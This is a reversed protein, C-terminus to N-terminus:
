SPGRGTVAAPADAVVVEYTERGPPSRFVTAFRAVQEAHFGSAIGAEAAEDSEWFTVVLAKGDPTVLVYSGEYGDQERLAPVVLEQFREVAADISMRVTDIEALTVRATM